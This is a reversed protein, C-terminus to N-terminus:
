SSVSEPHDAPGSRARFSTVVPSRRLAKSVAVLDPAKTQGAEAADEAEAGGHMRRLAAVVAVADATAAAQAPAERRALAEALARERVAPEMYPQLRLLGDSIQTRRQVLRRSIPSRRPLRLSGTDLPELEKVFPVLCRFHYYDTGIRQLAEGAHPLIFGVAIFLACVAAIPPAVYTSLWDLDHGSWRAFVAILKVTDYCLNLIFGIVLLVLGARLWGSVQRLWSWTVVSTIACAITHAGLYLLIHERMWPTNAYYTDLDRLREVPADAFAFTIWLGAVVASYVIGITWSTRRVRRPDGGRWHIIMVLCSACFLTLLTYLVPAAINAVGTARNMAGLTKPRGCYFVASALLLLGGVSRVNPDIRWFRMMVPLRIAFALTLIAAPILYPIYYKDSNM